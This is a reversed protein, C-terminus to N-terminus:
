RKDEAVTECSKIYLATGSVCQQRKHTVKIINRFAKDSIVFYFQSILLKLQPYPIVIIAGNITALSIHRMVNCHRWLLLSLTEFWWGWSQKRLGNIWVYILAFMLAGRWQGKHPSHVPSRHIGWVFPWYRPFHKWKIDDDHTFIITWCYLWLTHSSRNSYELLCM